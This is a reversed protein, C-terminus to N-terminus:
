KCNRCCTFFFLKPCNRLKPCNEDSFTDVIDRIDMVDAAVVQKAETHNANFELVRLAECAEYGLVREELGHTIIMVVFAQSSDDAEKAMAKLNTTMQNATWNQCVNVQFHLKEFIYKFRKSEMFVDKSVNNIIYCKGRPKQDMKYYLTGTMPSKSAQFPIQPDTFEPGSVNFSQMQHGKSTNYRVLQDAAETQGSERLLGILADCTSRTRTFEVLIFVLKECESELQMVVKQMEDRFYPHQELDAMLKDNLKVIYKFKIFGSFYEARNITKEMRTLGKCRFETPNLKNRKLTQAAFLQLLDYTRIMIQSLSEECSYQAICHSLSQGFFTIGLSPYFWTKRGKACSYSVFTNTNNDVWKKNLSKMAPVEDSAVAGIPKALDRRKAEPEACTDSTERVNRCCTFFFLKPCKLLQPCNKVSFTNVIDVIEKVDTKVVVQAKTDNPNRELVELAACAKVGLVREKLGHTIIMVVFAQSSNDAEKAMVQLNNAMEEATWDYKEEVQFHLKEFIYKFRKSELFVDKSVNNIIICKGRPKRDMPFPLSGKMIDKSPEFPIEAVWFEPEWMNYAKINHGKSTNHEVLQDAAATQGSERLLGILEDCTHRSRTFWVLIFILKQGDDDLKKEM